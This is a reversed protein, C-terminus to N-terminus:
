LCFTVEFRVTFEVAEYARVSAFFSNGSLGCSLIKTTTKFSFTFTFSLFRSLIYLTIPFSKGDFLHSFFNSKRSPLYCTWATLLRGSTNKLFTTKLIHLLNELSCGYTPM